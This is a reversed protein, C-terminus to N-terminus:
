PEGSSGRDEGRIFDITIDAEQAGVMPDLRISTITQGRWMEHGGVEFYCDHMGGDARIGIHVSKDEAMAPSDETTWFFQAGEGASVSMRAHVRDVADGAIRCNARVMYPDGGTARTRLTGNEVTFAALDHAPQWGGDHRDFEFGLRRTENPTLQGRQYQTASARIAFTGPGGPSIELIGYASHYSWGIGYASHYSWGGVKGAPLTDQRALAEGNLTVTRPESVACVVVRTPLPEPATLTFSLTGDRLQAAEIQGCANILITGGPAEVRTTVPEPEYGILKYVNHMIRRPAFLWAARNADIANVSDPWLALDEETEGQQYIASVTVGAALMRWPYTDDVEALKLAAFAWRLGNWQVPRGFWSGRFWTAGFVPISGYRMWPFADVDWQYLFPLGTEEWYVARQLWQRDGTIHYAELFAECADSSGLIDPTHVPVEWVQAARPVVFKDIYGLAKVGAEFAREDGTMRALRLMTWAKRAVLGMAEQGEYGLEAYDRGKFVGARGIQPHFRWGGDPDQSAVLKAAQQSQSLLAGVPLGFNFGM